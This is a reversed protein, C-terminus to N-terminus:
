FIAWASASAKCCIRLVVTSIEIAAACLIMSFRMSPPVLAASISLVM